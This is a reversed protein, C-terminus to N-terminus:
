ESIIKYLQNCYIDWTSKKLVRARAKISQEQIIEPRHIITTLIKKLEKTNDQEFLWGGNGYEIADSIGGTQTGIAPLGCSQAELFVLGFGEVKNSNSQERTALIFVDKTNYFSPLDQDSVFGHLHIQSQIPSAEILDKLYQVHPGTGAIHWEIKSQVDKPLSELTKLIFDHGKFKLIRSITVFRIVKDNTNKQSLRPTFFTHNVALPLAIVNSKPQIMKVLEKTYQSNTIVKKAKAVIWKSYTPLWFYKKIKSKGPLFESGHGLIYINKMGGLIALLAEPHWVGCIVDYSSKNKIRRIARITAIECQIRKPPMKIITVDPTNYPASVTPTHVTIVKITNYFSTLGSTIENCLRAVGGTSPPYDYSIILLNRKSM